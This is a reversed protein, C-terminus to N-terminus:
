SIETELMKMHNCFDPNNLILTKKDFLSIKDSKLERKLDIQASTLAFAMRHEISETSM